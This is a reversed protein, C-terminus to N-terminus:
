QKGVGEWGRKRTMGNTRYAPCRSEYKTFNEANGKKGWLLEMGM